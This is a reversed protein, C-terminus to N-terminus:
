CRVHTLGNGLSAARHYVVSHETRGASTRTTFMLTLPGLLVGSDYTLTLLTDHFGRAAISLTNALARPHTPTRRANCRLMLLLHRPLSTGPASPRPGSGDKRIPPITALRSRLDYGFHLLRTRLRIPPRSRLANVCLATSAAALSTIDPFAPARRTRIEVAVLVNSHAFAIFRWALLIDILTLRNYQIPTHPPGLHSAPIRSLSALLIYFLSSACCLFM